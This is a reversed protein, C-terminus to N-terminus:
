VITVTEEAAGQWLRLNWLHTAVTVLGIREYAHGSVSKLVLGIERREDSFLLLFTVVYGALTLAQVAKAADVTESEGDLSIEVDRLMKGPAEPPYAVLGRLVLHKSQSEETSGLSRPLDIVHAKAASAEPRLAFWVAGTTSAWSWSPASDLRRHPIWGSKSVKWCLQQLLDQEWLGYVHRDGWTAALENAIGNLAPLRDDPLTLMRLSFQYVIRGWLGDQSHSVSNDPGRSKSIIGQVLRTTQGEYRMYNVYSDSISKLPVEQCRWVVEASGYVLLRPSLLFEQFAWGRTNLPEDESKVFDDYEPEHRVFVSTIEGSSTRYPLQCVPPATTRKGLFGEKVSSSSAAAITLTANKYIPGMHDIEHAKDDASDQIVCLSDVWLYRFGLKRTTVVADQLTQPLTEFDISVM